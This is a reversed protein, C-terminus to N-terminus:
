LKSPEIKIITYTMKKKPLSVEVSEGVRRGMLALGIPSNHSIVGLEPKSEASGLIHYIKEGAEAKVTVQHGLQVTNTHASEPIIDAHNIEWELKTITNNIGRLRGKAHQYEANESFDGLEALRAVEAAAEPRKAKLKEVELKLDNLRGATM